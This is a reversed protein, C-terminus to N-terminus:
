INTPYLTCRAFSLSLLYLHAPPLSAFIFLAYQVGYLTYKTLDHHTRSQGHVIIIIWRHGTRIFVYFANLSYRVLSVIEVGPVNKKNEFAFSTKM